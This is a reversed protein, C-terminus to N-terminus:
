KIEELAINDVGTMKELRSKADKIQRSGGIATLSVRAGRGKPPKPKQYERLAVVTAGSVHLSYVASDAREGSYEVRSVLIKQEKLAGYHTDLYSSFNQADIGDFVGVAKKLVNRGM